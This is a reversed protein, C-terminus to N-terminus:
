NKVPVNILQYYVTSKGTDEDETDVLKIFPPLGKFIVMKNSNTQMSMLTSGDYVDSFTGGSVMAGTIKITWNKAAISIIQQIIIANFGTTDIESSTSTISIADFVKVPDVVTKFRHNHDGTM